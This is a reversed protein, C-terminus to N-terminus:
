VTSMSRCNVAETLRAEVKQNKGAATLAAGVVCLALSALLVRRDGFRQIVLGGPISLLVAPLVYAGILSGVETYSLGLAPVLLPAVVAVAHFQFGASLRVAVFAALVALSARTWGPSQDM